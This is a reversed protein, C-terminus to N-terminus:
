NREAGTSVFIPKEEIRESRFLQTIIITGSPFVLQMSLRLCWRDFRIVPINQRGILNISNLDSDWIGALRKEKVFAFSKLSFCIWSRKRAFILGELIRIWKKLLFHDTDYIFSSRYLYGTMRDFRYYNCYYWM